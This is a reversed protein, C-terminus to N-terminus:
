PTNVASRRHEALVMGAVKALAEEGEFGCRKLGEQAGSQGLGNKGFFGGHFKGATARARQALTRVGGSKTDDIAEFRYAAIM